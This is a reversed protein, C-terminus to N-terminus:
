DSISFPLIHMQKVYCASGGSCGCPRNANREFSGWHPYFIPILDSEYDSDNLFPMVIHESDIGGVFALAGSNGTTVVVVDGYNLTKKLDTDHDFGGSGMKKRIQVAKEYDSFSFCSSWRGPNDCNHGFIRRKTSNLKMWIFFPNGAPGRNPFDRELKPNWFASKSLISNFKTCTLKTALISSKDMSM